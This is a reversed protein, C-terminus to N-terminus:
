PFCVGLVNIMLLPEDGIKIFPGAFLFAILFYSVIKRKDYFWGKPMKPYVWKRKGTEDISSLSDRFSDADTSGKEYEYKDVIM